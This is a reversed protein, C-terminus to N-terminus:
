FDRQMNGGSFLILRIYGVINFIYSERNKM